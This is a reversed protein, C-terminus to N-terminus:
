DGIVPVGVLMVETGNLDVYRDIALSNAYVYASVYDVRANTRDAERGKYFRNVLSEDGECIRRIDPSTDAGGGVSDFSIVEYSDGTKHLTFLGLKEGSERMALTHGSLDYSDILFRGWVRLYHPDSDDTKYIIPAPIKVNGDYDKAYMATMYLCIIGLYEDSGSYYYAPLPSDPDHSGEFNLEVAPPIDEPVPLSFQSFEIVSANEVASVRGESVTVDFTAIKYLIDDRSLNFGLQTSGDSVPM